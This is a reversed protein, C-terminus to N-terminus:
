GPISALARLDPAVFEDRQDPHILVRLHGARDIGFVQTTHALITVGPAHASHEEREAHAAHAGAAATPGDGAAAAYVGYDALIRRLTAEDGTLGTTYPAFGSVYGALQEPTDNEPDVTVLVIAADEPGIGEEALLRTLKALTLPCVDPCHTYGFFLLVARGRYDSLHVTAGTHDTLVFDEALPTDPYPTGIFEPDHLRKLQGAALLALALATLGIGLLIRFTRPSALLSQRM